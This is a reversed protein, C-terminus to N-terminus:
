TSTSIATSLAGGFVPAPMSQTQGVSSGGVDPSSSLSRGNASVVSSTMPMMPMQLVLSGGLSDLFTALEDKPEPLCPPINMMCASPIKQLDHQMVTALSFSSLYTHWMPMIYGDAVMQWVIMCFQTITSYTGHVLVLMHQAPIYPLLTQYFQKQFVDVVVNAVKRMKVLVQYLLEVVPDAADGEKIAKHQDEQAEAHMICATECVKGFTTTAEDLADCKADWIAYDVMHMDMMALTVTTHWTRMADLVTNVYTSDVENLDALTM